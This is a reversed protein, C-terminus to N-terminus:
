KRLKSVKKVIMWSTKWIVSFSYQTRGDPQTLTILRFSKNLQRLNESIREGKFKTM